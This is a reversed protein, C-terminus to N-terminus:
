ELQHHEFGQALRRSHGRAAAARRAFNPDSKHAEYFAKAADSNLGESQLIKTCQLIPSLETM